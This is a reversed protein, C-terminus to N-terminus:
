PREAKDGGAAQPDDEDGQRRKAHAPSRSLAWDLQEVPVEKRSIFWRSRSLKAPTRQAESVLRMFEVRAPQGATIQAPQFWIPGRPTQKTAACCGNPDGTSSARWM